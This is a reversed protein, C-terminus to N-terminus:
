QSKEKTSGCGRRAWTGKVIEGKRERGVETGRGYEYLDRGEVSGALM